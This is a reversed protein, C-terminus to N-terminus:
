SGCKDTSSFRRTRGNTFSCEFLHLFFLLFLSCFFCGRCCDGDVFVFLCVCLSSKGTEIGMESNRLIESRWEMQEEFFIVVTSGGHAMYGHEQGAVVHQGEHSTFIVSGVMTAGISVYLMDGFIPSTMKTTLRKNTSLAHASTFESSGFGRVAAPNVSFLMGDHRYSHGVVADVPFHFRHYDQPALRAIMFSGRKFKESLQQKSSDFYVDPSLLDLNFSNGKIWFTTVDSLKKFVM